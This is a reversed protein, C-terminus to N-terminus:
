PPGPRRRDDRRLRGARRREAHRPPLAGRPVPHARPRRRARVARRRLRRDREACYDYADFLARVSGFRSPKINVTRPPWPARRHGRGRPDARGVDRARTRASCSATEDTLGPGGAVRRPVGRAVERYLAPDPPRRCPAATTARSTSRGRLRAARARRLRTRGTAAPTSSSASRRTSPSFASARPRPRTALRSRRVDRAAARTRRRGRAVGPRGCRSTSRRARSRGAATTSSSPARAARRLARADRSAALVLGITWHGRAAARRRAGSRAQAAGDYTVDEGLGEEGGGVLRVPRRAPRVRDLSRARTGELAYLRRSRLERLSDYLSVPGRADVAVPPGPRRERRHPRPQRPADPQRSREHLTALVYPTM